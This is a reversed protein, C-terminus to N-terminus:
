AAQRPGFPIKKPNSCQDAPNNSCPIYYRTFGYQQDRQIVPKPTSIYSTVILILSAAIIVL